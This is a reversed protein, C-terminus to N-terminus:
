FPSNDRGKIETRIAGKPISDIPKRRIDRYSSQLQKQNQLRQAGYTEEWIREEYM